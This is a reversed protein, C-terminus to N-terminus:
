VIVSAWLASWFCVCEELEDMSVVLFRYGFSNEMEQRKGVGFVAHEAACLLRKSYGLKFTLILWQM